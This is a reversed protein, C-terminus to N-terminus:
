DSSAQGLEKVKWGLRRGKERLDALTWMHEWRLPTPRPQVLSGDADVEVTASFNGGEVLYYPM